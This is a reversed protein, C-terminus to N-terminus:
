LSKATSFRGSPQVSQTVNAIEGAGGLSAGGIVGIIRLHGRMYRADTVGDDGGLLACPRALVRPEELFGLGSAFNARRALDPPDPAPWAPSLPSEEPQDGRRALLPVRM